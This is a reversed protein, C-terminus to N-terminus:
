LIDWLKSTYPPSWIFIYHQHDYYGTAIAVKLDLDSELYKTRDVGLVYMHKDCWTDQHKPNLFYSFYCCAISPAFTLIQGFDVM